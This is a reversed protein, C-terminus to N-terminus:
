AAHGLCRLVLCSTTLRIAFLSSEQIKRGLYAVLYVHRHIQWKLFLETNHALVYHLWLWSTAVSPRNDLRVASFDDSGPELAGRDDHITPLPTSLGGPVNVVEIDHKRVSGDIRFDGGYDETVVGEAELVTM